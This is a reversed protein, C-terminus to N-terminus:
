RIADADADAVADSHEPIPNLSPGAVPLESVGAMELTGDIFGARCAHRQVKGSSTKPISGRRRLVVVDAQVEHEAAVPQRVSAAVVDAPVDRSERQVESVVVLREDGERDITFAAGCSPRLAPHCREVTLEIDQPYINRGRLIILDKIRGTIYLEGAHVFGLDGTRLFPGAGDTTYATFTRATEEPRRWYGQAISPGSLWIEGPQDPPCPVCTEPHVVLLEQDLLVGGCGVLTRADLETAAVVTCTNRELDTRSVTLRAPAEGDDGGTVILSAEALGYCPY